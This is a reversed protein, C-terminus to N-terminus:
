SLKVIQKETRYVHRLNCLAKRILHKRCISWPQNDPHLCYNLLCCKAKAIGVLNMMIRAMGKCYQCNITEPLMAICMFSRDSV